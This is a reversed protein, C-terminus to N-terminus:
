NLLIQYLLQYINVVKIKLLYDTKLWSLKLEFIVKIKCLHMDLYNKINNSLTFNSCEEKCNGIGKYERQCTDRDRSCFM